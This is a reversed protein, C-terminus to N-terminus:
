PGVEREEEAEESHAEAEEALWAKQADHAQIRAKREALWQRFGTM